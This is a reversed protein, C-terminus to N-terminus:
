QRTSMKVSAAKRERLFIEVGNKVNKSERNVGERM